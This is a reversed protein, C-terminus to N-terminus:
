GGYSTSCGLQFIQKSCAGHCRAPQHEESSERGSAAAASRHGASRNTAQRTRQGGSVGVSWMLAAGGLEREGVVVCVAVVVM